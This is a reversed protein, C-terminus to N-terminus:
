NPMDERLSVLLKTELALALQALSRLTLNPPANFLRTVYARSVGMREALQTRSIGKDKMIQVAQEIVRLAIAESHYEPDRQFEAEYESEARSRTKLTSTM